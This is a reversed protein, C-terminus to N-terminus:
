SPNQLSIMTNLYNKVGNSKTEIYRLIGNKSNFPYINEVKTEQMKDLRNKPTLGGSGRGGSIKACGSIKM